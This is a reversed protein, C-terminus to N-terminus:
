LGCELKFLESNFEHYRGDDKDFPNALDPDLNFVYQAAQKATMMQYLEKSPAKM